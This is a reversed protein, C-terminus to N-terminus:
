ARCSIRSSKVIKCTTRKNLMQIAKLRTELILSKVISIHDERLWTLERKIRTLIINLGLILNYNLCSFTEKKM